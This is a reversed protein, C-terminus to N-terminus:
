HQDIILYPAQAMIYILVRSGEDSLRVLFFALSVLCHESHYLERTNQSLRRLEESGIIFLECFPEQHLSWIKLLM